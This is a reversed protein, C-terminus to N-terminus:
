DIINMPLMTSRVHGWLQAALGVLGVFPTRTHSYAAGTAVCPVVVLLVRGGVPPPSLCLGVAAGDGDVTVRKPLGRVPCVSDGGVQGHRLGQAAVSGDQLPSSPGWGM